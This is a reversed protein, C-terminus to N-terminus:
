HTVTHTPPRLNYHEIVIAFGAENRELPTTVIRTVRGRGAVEGGPQAPSQSPLTLCFEVTTDVPLPERWRVLVGSASINETHTQLWSGKEAPRFWVPLQLPFRTARM